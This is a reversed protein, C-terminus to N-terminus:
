RAERVELLSSILGNRPDDWERFTPAAELVSQSVDPWDARYTRRPQRRVQTALTRATSAITAHVGPMRRRLAQLPSNRSTTRKSEGYTM